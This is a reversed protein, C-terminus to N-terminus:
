VNEYIEDMIKIFRGDEGNAIVDEAITKTFEYLDPYKIMLEIHLNEGSQSLGLINGSKRMALDIMSLEFGDETKVMADLRENSDADESVLICYPKYSGRKVRGRLQHLSSLGFREANQIVIVTANPNNVGVEVVTTSILIQIRNNMFDDLVQLMEKEKMKGTLAGVKYRGGLFTEYMKKTQQVSLCKKMAENETNEDILPCIVYAQRGQQLEQLLIGPIGQNTTKITTVPKRGSPMSKITFQMVGEGYIASALTRPIPTASMSFYAPTLKTKEKLKERKEVGFRQEEDIVVLGLNNFIISDEAVAHTGVLIQITGDALEKLLTDKEKKKLSGNLFACKIGYPELLEKLGDYHQSALVVTPAILASQYRNEAALILLLFATITKGCSVDGQVLANVQRHSILTDCIENVVKSQDETLTYPLESIVQDMLNRKRIDPLNAAPANKRRQMHIAFYTLDEIYFSANAMSVEKRDAPYHLMRGAVADPILHFKDMCRKTFPEELEQTISEKVLRNYSEESLGKRKKYVSNIKQYKQIDPSFYVPALIQYGWRDDYSLKGHIFFPKGCLYEWKDVMYDSNFWTVKFPCGTGAEMLDAHTMLIGTSATKSEIKRLIGIVSVMQNSQMPSLRTIQRCDRYLRPRARLIQEYNELGAKQLIKKQKEYLNIPHLM